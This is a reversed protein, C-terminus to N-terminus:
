RKGGFFVGMIIAIFVVLLVLALGGWLPSFARLENQRRGRKGAKTGPAKTPMAFVYIM